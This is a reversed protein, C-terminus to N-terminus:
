LRAFQYGDSKLKEIIRPLAELIRPAALQSDHMLVISGPRVHKLVISEVSAVDRDERYDQAVVDWMVIKYGWWLCYGQVPGIQGYAPRFMKVRADIAQEIAIRGRKADKLYKFVSSRWGSLHAYGHNGIRHGAELVRRAIEPHKEVCEGLMFFTAQADYRALISLIQDTVGPTPGDDFTLYVNRTRASKKWLFFPIAYRLWDPTREFEAKM